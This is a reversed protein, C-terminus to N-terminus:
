FSRLRLQRPNPLLIPWLQLRANEDLIRLEGIVCRMADAFVVDEVVAQDEAIAKERQLLLKGPLRPVAAVTRQEFPVVEGVDDPVGVGTSEGDRDVGDAVAAHLPREVGDLICEVASRVRQSVRDQVVQEDAVVQQRPVGVQPDDDRDFRHRRAERAEVPVQHRELQLVDDPSPTVEDCGTGVDGRVGVPRPAGLLRDVREKPELCQYHGLVQARRVVGPFRAAEEGLILEEGRPLPKTRHGDVSCVHEVALVLDSREFGSLEGIQDDEGGIGERGVRVGQGVDVNEQRHDVPLDLPPAVAELETRGLAGPGRGTLRRRRLRAASIGCIRGVRWSSRVERLALTEHKTGPIRVHSRSIRESLTMGM